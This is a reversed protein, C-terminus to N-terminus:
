PENNDIGALILQVGLRYGTIFDEECVMESLEAQASVYKDFTDRLGDPLAERIKSELENMKDLTIAFPTGKRQKHNFVTYDGHYIDKLINNM